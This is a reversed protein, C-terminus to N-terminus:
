FFGRECFIMFLRKVHHEQGLFNEYVICHVLNCIVTLNPIFIDSPLM